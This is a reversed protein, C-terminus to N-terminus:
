WGANYDKAVNEYTAVLKVGANEGNASFKLEDVHSKYGTFDPTVVTKAGDEKYTETYSFASPRLRAGVNVKVDAFAYGALAAVGIVATALKKM